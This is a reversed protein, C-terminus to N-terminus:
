LNQSRIRKGHVKQVQLMWMSKATIDENEGNVLIRYQISIDGNYLKSPHSQMDAIYVLVHKLIIQPFCDLFTFTHFREFKIACMRASPLKHSERKM